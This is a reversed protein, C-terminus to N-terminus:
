PFTERGLQELPGLFGREELHDYFEHYWNRAYEIPFQSIELNEQLARFRASVYRIARHCAEYEDLGMRHRPLISLVRLPKPPLRIADRRQVIDGVVIEYMRAARRGVDRRDHVSIDREIRERDTNALWM